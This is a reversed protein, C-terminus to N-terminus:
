LSWNKALAQPSGYPCVVERWRMFDGTKIVAVIHHNTSYFKVDYVKGHRLNLSGDAGIFKLRM